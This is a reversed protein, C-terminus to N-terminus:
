KALRVKCFQVELLICKIYRGLPGRLEINEVKSATESERNLHSM